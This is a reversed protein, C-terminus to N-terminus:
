SIGMQEALAAPEPIPVGQRRLAEIHLTIGDRILQRVEDVSAGVVGLGPLDPAYAAWGDASKEYVVLYQKM